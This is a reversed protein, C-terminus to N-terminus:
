KPTAGLEQLRQQLRRDNPRKTLAARFRTIAQERDGKKLYAEGMLADVDASSPYLEQNMQLMALAETTKGRAILSQALTNIAGESFDYRGSVMDERFRKYRAIATDTGFKDIAEALAVDLTQPLPSGRHCTVCRVRVPPDHRAPLSALLVRNVTDSMFLMFRAKRKTEKDDSAYNTRPGGQGAPAADAGAPAAEQVHCYTCRVGLAQTFGRMIGTLSDRPIDPSFFKLNQPRQNGGPQADAAATFVFTAPLVVFALLAIPRLRMAPGMALM